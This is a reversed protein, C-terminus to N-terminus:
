HIKKLCKLSHHTRTLSLKAERQCHIDRVFPFYCPFLDGHAFLQALAGEAHNVLADGLTNDLILGFGPHSDFRNVLRGAHVLADFEEVFRGNHFLEVTVM